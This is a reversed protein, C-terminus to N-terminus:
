SNRIKTGKVDNNKNISIDVLVLTSTKGMRTIPVQNDKVPLITIAEKVKFTIIMARAAPATTITTGLIHAIVKAQTIVLREIKPVLLKRKLLNKNRLITTM